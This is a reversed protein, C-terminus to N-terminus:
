AVGEWPISAQVEWNSENPKEFRNSSSRKLQPM